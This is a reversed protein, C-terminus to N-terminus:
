TRRNRNAYAQYVSTPIRGKPSVTYGNKSAWRRVAAPTTAAPRRLSGTKPIKRAHKIWFALADDLQASHTANLDIQYDKGDLSFTRSRVDDDASGNIDDLLMVLEYEM